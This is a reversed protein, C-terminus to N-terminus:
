LSSEHPSLHCKLNVQSKKEETGALLEGSGQKAGGGRIVGRRGWGVVVCILIVMTAGSMKVVLWFCINHQWRRISINLTTQILDTILKVACTPYLFLFWTYIM